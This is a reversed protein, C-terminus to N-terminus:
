IFSEYGRAIRSKAGGASGSDVSILSRLNLKDYSRMHGLELFMFCTQLTGTARRRHPNRYM